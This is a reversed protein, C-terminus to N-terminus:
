RVCIAGGGGSIGSGRSKHALINIMCRVLKVNSEKDVRRYIACNYCSNLFLGGLAKVRSELGFHLLIVWHLEDSSDM